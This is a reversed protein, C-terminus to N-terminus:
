AMIDNLRMEAIDLMDTVKIEEEKDKLDSGLCDRAGARWVQIDKEIKDLVEKLREASERGERKRKLMELQHSMAMRITKNEVWDGGIDWRTIASCTVAITPHVTGPHFLISQGVWLVSVSVHALDRIAGVLHDADKMSPTLDMWRLNAETPEWTLVVSAGFLGM